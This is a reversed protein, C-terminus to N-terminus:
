QAIADLVEVFTARMPHGGAVPNPITIFTTFPMKGWASTVLAKRVDPRLKAIHVHMQACGAHTAPSPAM